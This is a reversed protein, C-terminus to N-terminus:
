NWLLYIDVRAIVIHTYVNNDFLQDRHYAHMHIPLRYSGLLDENILSM